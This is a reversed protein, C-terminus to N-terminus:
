ECTERRSPALYRDCELKAAAQEEDTMQWWLEEMESLLKLEDELTALATTAHPLAVGAAKLDILSHYCTRFAWSPAQLLDRAKRVLLWAWLLRSSPCMGLGLEESDFEMEEYMYSNLAYEDHTASQIFEAVQGWRNAEGPRDEKKADEVRDLAEYLAVEDVYQECGINGMGIKAKQLVYHGIDKTSMWSIAQEIHPYSCHAWVMTDLDGVLVLYGQALMLTCRYTSSGDPNGIVLREGPGRSLIAHDKLSRAAMEVHQDIFQKTSLPKM